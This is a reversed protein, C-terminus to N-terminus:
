CIMVLINERGQREKGKGTLECEMYKWGIACSVVCVFLSIFRTVRERGRDSEQPINHGFKGYSCLVM